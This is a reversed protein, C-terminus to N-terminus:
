PRKNLCFSLLTKIAGTMVCYHELTRSAGEDDVKGVIVWNFKAYDGSGDPQSPHWPLNVIPPNGHRDVWVGENAEDTYGLWTMATTIASFRDATDATTLTPLEAGFTSCLDNADQWTRATPFYKFCSQPTSM